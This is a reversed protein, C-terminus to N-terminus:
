SVEVLGYLGLLLTWLEFYPLVFVETTRGALGPWASRLYRVVEAKARAHVM